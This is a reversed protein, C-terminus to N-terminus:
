KAADFAALAAVGDTGCHNELYPRACEVCREAAALKAAVVCGADAALAACNRSEMDSDPYGDHDDHDYHWKHNEELATRLAAAGNEVAAIRAVLERCKAEAATLLLEQKANVAVLANAFMTWWETSRGLSVMESYNYTVMTEGYQTLYATNM